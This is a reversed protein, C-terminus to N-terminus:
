VEGREEEFFSKERVFFLFFHLFFFSLSLDMGAFLNSHVKEEIKELFNKKRFFLYKRQFVFSFLTEFWFIHDLLLLNSYKTFKREIKLVGFPPRQTREKILKQGIM